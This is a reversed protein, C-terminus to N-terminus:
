ERWSLTGGLGSPPLGAFRMTSATLLCLPYARWIV